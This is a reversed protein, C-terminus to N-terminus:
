YSVLDCDDKSFMGNEDDVTHIAVSESDKYVSAKEEDINDDEFNSKINSLEPLKRKASSALEANVDVALSVSSASKETSTGSVDGTCAGRIDIITPIFGDTGENSTENKEDKLNAICNLIEENTQSVKHGETHSSEVFNSGVSIGVENSEIISHEVSKELENEMALGKESSIMDNSKTKNTETFNTTEDLQALDNKENLIRVSEETSDKESQIIGVTEKVTSDISDEDIVSVTEKEVKVIQDGSVTEKEVTEKEVENMPNVIEDGSVTEKEVKIIPNVTQDEDTFTVYPKATDTGNNKNTCLNSTIIVDSNSNHEDVASESCFKETNESILKMMNNKNCETGEDLKCFSKESVDTRSIDFTHSKSDIISGDENKDYSDTDLINAPLETGIIDDSRIRHVSDRAIFFQDKNEDKKEKFSKVSLSSLYENNSDISPESKIVLENDILSPEATLIRDM